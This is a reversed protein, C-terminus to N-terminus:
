DASSPISPLTAGELRGAAAGARSKRRSFALLALGLTASGITAPEPIPMTVSYYMVPGGNFSYGRSKVRDVISADGVEILLLDDAPYPRLDILDSTVIWGTTQSSENVLRQQVWSLMHTTSRAIWFSKNTTAMVWESPEDYALIDIGTHPQRLMLIERYNAIDNRITTPPTGASDVSPYIKAEATSAVLLLGVFLTRAM